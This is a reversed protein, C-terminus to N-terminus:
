DAGRSSRALYRITTTQSPSQCGGRSEDSRDCVRILWARLISCDRLRAFTNEGSILEEIKSENAKGVSRGSGEVVAAECEAAVVAECEAAVAAVVSDVVGWAPRVARAAR